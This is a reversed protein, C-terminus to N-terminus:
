RTGDADSASPTFTYANGATVSAPPTGSKTPARNVSTSGVVTLDFAPLLAQSKGDSVWVVIGRYTGADAAAPTGSMQGTTTNFMAWAPKAEIGFIM